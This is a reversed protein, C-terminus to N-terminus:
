LNRLQRYSMIYIIAVIFWMPAFWSGAVLGAIATTTALAIVCLSLIRKFYLDKSFLMLLQVGITIM